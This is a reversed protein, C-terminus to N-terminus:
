AWICSSVLFHYYHINFIISQMSIRRIKKLIRKMWMMLVIHMRQIVFLCVCLVYMTRKMWYCAKGLIYVWPILFSGMKKRRSGPRRQNREKKLLWDELKRYWGLKFHHNLGMLGTKGM